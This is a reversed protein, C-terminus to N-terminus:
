SLTLLSQVQALEYDQASPSYISPSYISPSYISPSYISPSYISPSYISPSYISPSYISPSYISPLSISPSYVSPNYISPSYISPSFADGPTKAALTQLGSPTSLRSEAQGIDSFLTLDYNAPLDTLDVAVTGGPAVAVKYWRAQGT